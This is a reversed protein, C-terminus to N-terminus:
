AQPPPTTIKRFVAVFYKDNEAPYPVINEIIKFDQRVNENLHPNPTEDAKITNDQDQSKEKENESVKKLENHLHYKGNEYHITALHEMKWFTHAIVDKAIIILSSNQLVLYFVLVIYTVVKKM